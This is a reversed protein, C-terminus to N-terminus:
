GLEYQIYEGIMGTSCIPLMRPDRLTRLIAAVVQLTNEQGSRSIKFSVLRLFRTSLALSRRM